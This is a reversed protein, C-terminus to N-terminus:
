EDRLRIAVELEYELRSTTEFLSILEGEVEEELKRREILPEQTQEM